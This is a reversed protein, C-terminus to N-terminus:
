KLSGAEELEKMYARYEKAEVPDKISGLKSFAENKDKPVTFSFTKGNQTERKTTNGPMTKGPTVQGVEFYSKLTGLLKVDFKVPNYNEDQAPKGESDLVLIDTVDGTDSKKIEYGSQMLDKIAADILTKKVPDAKPILFKNEENGLAASVRNRLVATTESLKVDSKYKDYETQVDVAKQNLKKVENQFFESKKIDDPTIDKSKTGSKKTAYSEFMDEISGKDVEFKESLTKELESLSERKGRGHGENHAETKIRKMKEQYNTDLYSKIQDDSKPKANEGDGDYLAQRLAGPDTGLVSGVFELLTNEM